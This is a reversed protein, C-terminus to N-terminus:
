AGEGVAAIADAEARGLAAEVAARGDETPLDAVVVL